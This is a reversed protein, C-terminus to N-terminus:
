PAPLRPSLACSPSSRVQVCLLTDNSLHISDISLTLMNLRQAPTAVLPDVLRQWLKFYKSELARHELMELAETETSSMAALHAAQQESLALEAVKFRWTRFCKSMSRLTMSGCLKKMMYLAVKLRGSHSLAKKWKNFGSSLERKLMATVVRRTSASSAELRTTRKVEAARVLDCQRCLHRFGRGVILDSKGQM